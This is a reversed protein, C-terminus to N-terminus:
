EGRMVLPLYIAIGPPPEAGSEVETFPNGHDLALAVNGAGDVAQAFYEITEGTLPAVVGEAIGIGAANQGVYTLEVKRWTTEEGLRYLVIVRSVGSMQDATEAKDDVWVEFRLEVSNSIARVAWISPAVFDTTTFPAHYVEYRLETYRRLVGVTPTAESTAQFQAPIVVLQEHSTGDISLLRNIVVSNAPYWGSALFAPEVEL